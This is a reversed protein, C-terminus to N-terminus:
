SKSAPCGYPRNTWLAFGKGHIASKKQPKDSIEDNQIGSTM